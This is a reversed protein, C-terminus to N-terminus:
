RAQCSNQRATGAGPQCSRNASPLRPSSLMSPLRCGKIALRCYTLSKSAAPRSPRAHADFEFGDDPAIRAHLDGALGAPDIELLGAAANRQDAQVGGAGVVSLVAVQH